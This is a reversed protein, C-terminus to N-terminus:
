ECLVVGDRLAECFLKREREEGANSAVLPSLGTVGISSSSAGLLVGSRGWIRELRVLPQLRVEVEAWERAHESRSLHPPPKRLEKCLLSTAARILERQEPTSSPSLSAASVNFNRNHVYGPSRQTPSTARSRAASSPSTPRASPSATSRRQTGMSSRPAETSSRQPSEASSRRFNDVSLRTASELSPRPTKASSGKCSPPPTPPSSPLYTASASVLGQRSTPTFRRTPTRAQSPSAARSPAPSSPPSNFPLHTISAAGPRKTVTGLRGRGGPQPTPSDPPSPLDSSKRPADISSRASSPSPTFIPSPRSKGARPSAIGNREPTGMGGKHERRPVLPQPASIKRITPQMSTRRTRDHGSSATASNSASNVIVVQQSNPSPIPHSSLHVAPSSASAQRLSPTIFSTWGAVRSQDHREANNVHETSVRSKDVSSVIPTSSSTVSNRGARRLGVKFELRELMGSKSKENELDKAGNDNSSPKDKDRPKTSITGFDDDPSTARTRSRAATKKLGHELSSRIRQKFTTQLSEPADLYALSHPSASSEIGRSSLTFPIPQSKLNTRHQSAMPFPNLFHPKSSSSLALVAMCPGCTAGRDSCSGPIYYSLVLTRTPCFTFASPTPVHAILIAGAQPSIPCLVLTALLSDYLVCTLCLLFFAVFGAPHYVYPAPLSLHRFNGLSIFSASRIIGQHDIRCRNGPTTSTFSRLSGTCYSPRCSPPPSSPSWSHLPARPCRSYSSLM